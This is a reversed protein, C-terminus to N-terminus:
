LLEPNEHINGVVASSKFIGVMEDHENIEEEVAGEARFKDLCFRGEHFVVAAHNTFDYGEKTEYGEEGMDEFELVDGEYIDKENKDKLGTFQELPTKFQFAKDDKSLLELLERSWGTSGTLDIFKWGHESLGRFKIERM